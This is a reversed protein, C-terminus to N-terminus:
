VVKAAKLAEIEAPTFGFEGLVESSHEGKEPIATVIKAPTRSLQVPQGILEVEGRVAHTVKETLQLHRVQPDAFVEDMKHIPGV